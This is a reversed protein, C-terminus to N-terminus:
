QSLGVENLIEFLEEDNIMAKMKMAKLVDDPCKTETNAMLVACAMSLISDTDGGIHLGKRLCSEVSHSTLGLFIAIPVTISADTTFELNEALEDINYNLDYGFHKQIVDVIDEKPVNTKNLFIATTIAKAGQIAEKSNHTVMANSVASDIAEALTDALYAIPSVRIAAGNGKSEYYTMDEEAMFAKLTESFGADHRASCMERLTKEFDLGGKIAKYTAATMISDDTFNSQQTVLPLNFGKIDTHEYASGVFDGVYPGIM